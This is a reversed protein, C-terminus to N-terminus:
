QYTNKVRQRCEKGVGHPIKRLAIFICAPVIVIDDVYGIVPIFDPILGLPWLAYGIATWLFIKSPIPTQPHRSILRYVRLENKLWGAISRIKRLFCGASLVATHKYLKATHSYQDHKYIWFKPVVSLKDISHAVLAKEKLETRHVDM